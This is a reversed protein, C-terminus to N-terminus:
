QTRIANGPEFRCVDAGSVDFSISIFTPQLISTMCGVRGFDVLRLGSKHYDINFAARLPRIDSLGMVM